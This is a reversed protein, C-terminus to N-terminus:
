SAAAQREAVLREVDDRHFLIAGNPGPLRHAVPLKEGAMRIVTRGSCGLLQGAETSTLLDTQAM